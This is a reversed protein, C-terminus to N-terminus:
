VSLPGPVMIIKIEIKIKISTIWYQNLKDGVPFFPLSSRFREVRKARVTSDELNNRDVISRGM